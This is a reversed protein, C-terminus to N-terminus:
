NSPISKNLSQTIEKNDEKNQLNSMEKVKTVADLVKRADKVAKNGRRLLRIYQLLWPWLLCISIPGCFLDLGLTMAAVVMVAGLLCVGYCERVIQQSDDDLRAWITEINERCGSFVEKLTEAFGAIEAEFNHKIETIAKQKPTILLTRVKELAPSFLLLGLCTRAIFQGAERWCATCDTVKGWLTYKESLWTLSETIWEQM